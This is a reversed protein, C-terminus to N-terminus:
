VTRWGPLMYSYVICILFRDTGSHDTSSIHIIQLHDTWRCCVYARVKASDAEKKAKTPWAGLGGLAGTTKDAKGSSGRRQKM